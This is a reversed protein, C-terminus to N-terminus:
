VHLYTVSAQRISIGPRFLSFIYYKVVHIVTVAVCAIVHWSFFVSSCKKM